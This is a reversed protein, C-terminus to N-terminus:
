GDIAAKKAQAEAPCPKHQAQVRPTAAKIAKSREEPGSMEAECNQGGRRAKANRARASYPTRGGEQHERARGSKRVAPAQRAARLM